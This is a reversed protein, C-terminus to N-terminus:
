KGALSQVDLRRGKDDYRSLHLWDFPALSVTGKVTATVDSEAVSVDDLVTEKGNYVSWLKLRRMMGSKAVTHTITVHVGTQMGWTYTPEKSIVSKQVFEQPGSGLQSWQEETWTCTTDPLYIEALSGKRTSFGAALGAGCGLLVAIAALRWRRSSRPSDKPM